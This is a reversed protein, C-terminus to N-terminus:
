ASPIIMLCSIKRFKLINKRYKLINEERNKKYNEQKNLIIKGITKRYKLIVIINREVEPYKEEEAPETAADRETHVAPLVDNVLTGVTVLLDAAVVPHLPM